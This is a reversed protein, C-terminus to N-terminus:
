HGEVEELKERQDYHAAKQRWETAPVDSLNQSAGSAQSPFRMQHDMEPGAKELCGNIGWQQAHENKLNVSDGELAVFILMSM